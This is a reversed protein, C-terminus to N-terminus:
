VSCSQFVDYKAGNNGYTRSVFEYTTPGSSAPVRVSWTGDPTYGLVWGTTGSADTVMFNIVQDTPLGAGLVGDASVICPATVAATHGRGKGGTGALAPAATFAAIAVWLVFMKLGRYSESPQQTM